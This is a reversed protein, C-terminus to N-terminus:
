RSLPVCGLAAYGARITNVSDNMFKRQDPAMPLKEQAAASALFIDDLPCLVDHQQVHLQSLAQQLRRNIDNQGTHQVYLVVTIALDLALGATLAVTRRRNTKLRDSLTSVVKKLDDASTKLADTASTTGSTQEDDEVDQRGGAPRSRCTM